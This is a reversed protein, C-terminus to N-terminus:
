HRLRWAYGCLSLVSVEIFLAVLVLPELWNGVDEHDFFVSASRTVLYGAIPGVAVLAAALWVLSSDDLLLAVAVVAAAVVLVTFLAGLGPTERWTDPMEVLHVLAIGAVGVIALGRVLLRRSDTLSEHAQSGALTATGGITVHSQSM